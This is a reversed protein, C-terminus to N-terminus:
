RTDMALKQCGLVSLRLVGMSNGVRELDTEPAELGGWGRRTDMGLKRCWMEFGSIVDYWWFGCFLVGEGVFFSARNNNMLLRM